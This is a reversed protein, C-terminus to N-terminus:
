VRKAVSPTQGGVSATRGETLSPAAAARLKNRRM